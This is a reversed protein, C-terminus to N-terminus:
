EAAKDIHHSVCYTSVDNLDIYEEVMSKILIKVETYNLHYKKDFVSWIKDYSIYFWKIKKNYNYLVVDNKNYVLTDSYKTSRSVDLDTLMEKFWIEYDKEENQHLGLKYKEIIYIQDETLENRIKDLILKFIERNKIYSINNLIFKIDDKTLENQLAIEVGKAFNNIISKQLLESNSLGKLSKLIEEDSKPTMLDRINENYSRLYKM